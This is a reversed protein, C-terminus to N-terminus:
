AEKREGQRRPVHVYGRTPTTNGKWGVLLPYLV